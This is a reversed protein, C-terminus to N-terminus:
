DNRDTPKFRKREYRWRQIEVQETKRFYAGCIDIAIVKPSIKHCAFFDEVADKAPWGVWDDIIIYGGVSVKDYLNYLVDVTSIYLDGDMRLVSISDVHPTLYSLSDNFFGKVFYINDNLLSFEHLYRAVKRESVSVYSLKDFGVDRKELTANGPPLGQFSDCLIINRRQHLIQFLAAAFISAGGRWVGTEVFHGPVNEEIVSNILSYINMLRKKGIMTIGFYSMDAGTERIARDLPSLDLSTLANVRREADGYSLGTIFGILVEVYTDVARQRFSKFKSEPPPKTIKDLYAINEELGRVWHEPSHFFKANMVYEDVEFFHKPQFIKYGEGQISPIQKYIDKEAYCVFVVLQFVLLGVSCFSSFKM